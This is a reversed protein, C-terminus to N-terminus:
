KAAGSPIVGVLDEPSPTWQRIEDLALALAAWAQHAQIWALHNPRTQWEHRVAHELSAYVPPPLHYRRRDTKDDRFWRWRNVIHAGPLFSFRGAPALPRRRFEAAWRLAYGLTPLNREDAMDAAVLCGTADLEDSLAVDRLLVLFEEAPYSPDSMFDILYPSIIRM